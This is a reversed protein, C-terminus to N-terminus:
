RIFDPHSLSGQSPARCKQFHRLFKRKLYLINPLFTPDWCNKRFGLDFFNTNLHPQALV